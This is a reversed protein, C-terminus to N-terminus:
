GALGMQRRFADTEWNVWQEAIRGGAIRHMTTGTVSVQGGTGAVGEFPGLHRGHLRWRTVVKDGEAIRDLIDIALDPIARRYAVIRGKVGEPGMELPMPSAPDHIVFDASFTREVLDLDARNWAEFYRGSIAKVNDDDMVRGGHRLMM